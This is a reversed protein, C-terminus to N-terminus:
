NFGGTVSNCMFKYTINVADNSPLLHVARMDFVLARQELFFRANTLTYQM